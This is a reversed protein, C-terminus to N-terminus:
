KSRDPKLNDFDVGAVGCARRVEYEALDVLGEQLNGNGAAFADHAAKLDAKATNLQSRFLNINHVNVNTSELLGLKEGLIVMKRSCNGTYNDDEYESVSETETSTQAEAYSDPEVKASDTGSNPTETTTAACGAMVFCAISMLLIGVINNRVRM